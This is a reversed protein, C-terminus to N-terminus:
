MIDPYESDGTTVELESSTASSQSHSADTSSVDDEGDCIRENAGGTVRKLPRRSDEDCKKRACSTETTGVHAYGWSYCFGGCWKVQSAVEEKVGRGSVGWLRPLKQRTSQLTAIQVICTRMNRRSPIRVVEVKAGEARIEGVSVVVHACVSVIRKPMRQNRIGVVNIGPSPIVGMGTRETTSRQLVSSKFGLDRSPVCNVM